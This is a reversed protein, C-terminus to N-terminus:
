GGLQEKTPKQLISIDTWRFLDDTGAERISVNFRDVELVVYLTANPSDNIVVLDGEVLTGLKM